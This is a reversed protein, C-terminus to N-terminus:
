QIARILGRIQTKMYTEAEVAPVRPVRDEPYGGLQGGVTRLLHEAQALRNSLEQKEAQAKHLTLSAEHVERELELVGKDMNARDALTINKLGEIERIRREVEVLHKWERLAMQKLLFDDATFYKELMQARDQLLKLKLWQNTKQLDDLTSEVQAMEQHMLHVKDVASRAIGVHHDPDQSKSRRKASQRSSPMEQPASSTTTYTTTAVPQEAYIYQQQQQQQPMTQYGPMSVSQFTTGFQGVGPSGGYYMSM